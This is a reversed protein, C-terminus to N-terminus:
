TSKKSPTNSAAAALQKARLQTHIRAVQRRVVRIRLPNEIPSVKHAFRLSQLQAEEAALAQRLDAETLGRLDTKKKKM